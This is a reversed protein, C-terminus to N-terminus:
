ASKQDRRTAIVSALIGFGVIGLVAALSLWNPLKIANHAFLKVGILVLLLALAYKLYRFQDIMSALVFYLSRLGLIAFVNSSVVLFPDTTVALVAPVSDFAFVVDTLEVAVLAVALQTFVLRGNERALFHSGHKKRAVPLIRRTTRVFWTEPADELKEEGEFLLKVGSLALIAGFVYFAWTFHEILWIGGAIMAGRFVLAGLIGWFLVRHQYRNEIKLSQFILSIVFINDISLSKELLYGTLYQLAAQGGSLDHLSDHDIWRNEYILYVIGTFSIGIAIWLATWGIAERTKIDHATRHFVGLDLALLLVILAFFALWHWAFPM